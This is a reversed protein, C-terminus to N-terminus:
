HGTVCDDLTLSFDVGIGRAVGDRDPNRCTGTVVVAGTPPRVGPALKFVLVPPVTRDNM